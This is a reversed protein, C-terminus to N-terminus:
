FLLSELSWGGDALPAAPQKDTRTTKTDCFIMALELEAIRNEATSLQKSVLLCFKFLQCM